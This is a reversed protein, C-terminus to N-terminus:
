DVDYDAPFEAERGRGSLEAARRDFALQEAPTRMEQLVICWGHLTPDLHGAQRNTEVLKVGPVLFRVIRDILDQPVVEAHTRLAICWADRNLVPSFGFGPRAVIKDSCSSDRVDIYEYFGGGPHPTKAHTQEFTIM